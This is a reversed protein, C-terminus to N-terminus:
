LLREPAMDPAITEEASVAIAGAKLAARASQELSLGQTFSWALAAMSADGGGTTNVIETKECPLHIMQEGEAAIIGNGGCSVFVRKMGMAVLARAADEPTETETLHMAEIDNPKFTHLKPLVGRLRQAKKSSVPDAFLPATVNESLFQVSGETLNGDFIVLAAQNLVELKSRLYTEDISDAVDADCVALQMEGTEDTIYLYTSTPLETYVADSIDMGLEACSTRLENAYIDNGFATLFKVPVGMLRLNHAINRGVGGPNHRVTGPNSDRNILKTFPTGCIDMNVAGVVAVYQQTNMTEM